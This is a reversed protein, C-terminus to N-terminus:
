SVRVRVFVLRSTNRFGVTIRVDIDPGSIV